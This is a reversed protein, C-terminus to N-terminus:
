LASRDRRLHGKEDVRADPRQSKAAIRLCIFRLDML